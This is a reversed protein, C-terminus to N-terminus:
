QLNYERKAYEIAASLGGSGAVGQTELRQRGGVGEGGAVVMGALKSGKDREAAEGQQADDARQEANEARERNVERGFVWGIATFAIAEVGGFVYVWREWEQQNGTDANAVLFTAFAGFAVVVVIAFAVRVIKM